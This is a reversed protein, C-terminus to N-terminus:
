LLMVSPLPDITSDVERSAPLPRRMIAESDRQMRALTEEYVRAARTNERRAMALRETEEAMGRPIPKHALCYPSESHWETAVASCASRRKESGDDQTQMTTHSCYFLRWRKHRPYRYALVGCSSCRYRHKHEPDYQIWRAGQTVIAQAEDEILELSHTCQTM